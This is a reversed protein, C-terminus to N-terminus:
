VKMAKISGSYLRFLAKLSGQSLRVLATLSGQTRTPVFEDQPLSLPLLFFSLAFFLAVVVPLGGKEGTERVRRRKEAAEM